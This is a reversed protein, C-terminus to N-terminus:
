PERPVGCSSKMRGLLFRSSNCRIPNEHITAIPDAQKIWRVVQMRSSYFLLAPVSFKLKGGGLLHEGLEQGASRSNDAIQSRALIAWFPIGSSALFLQM